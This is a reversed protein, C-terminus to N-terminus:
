ELQHSLMPIEENGESLVVTPFEIVGLNASDRKRPTLRVKPTILFSPENAAPNEELDDVDICVDELHLQQSEEDKAPNIILSPALEQSTDIKEYRDM